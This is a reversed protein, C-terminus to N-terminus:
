SEELTQAATKDKSKKGFGMSKFAASSSRTLSARGPMGVSLKRTLSGGSPVRDKPSEEDKGKSKRGLGALTSFTASSSLGPRSGQSAPLGIAPSPTGPSAGSRAGYGNSAVSVTSIFSASMSPANTDTDSQRIASPDSSSVTGSYGVAKVTLGLGNGGDSATESMSADTPHRQVHSASSTAPFYSEDRRSSSAGFMSSRKSSADKDKSSKTRSFWNGSSEKSKVSDSQTQIPPTSFRRVGSDQSRGSESAQQPPTSYRGLRPSLSPTRAAANSSFGVQGVDSPASDQRQRIDARPMPASSSTPSSLRRNPSEQEQLPALSDQTVGM